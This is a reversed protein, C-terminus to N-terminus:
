AAECLAYLLTKSVDNLKWRQRSNFKLRDEWLARRVMALMDRYSPVMKTTYWPPTEPIFDPNVAAQQLYWLKVLTSILMALPTQRMVTRVSWGRTREMGMQQKSEQFCEEIGWRDFFTQIIEEDPLTPDSCVARFPDERGSPDEVFVVRVLKTRCVHYWQCTLGHFRVKVTRGQKRLTATRWKGAVALEDLSDLREGRLRRRQGRSPPIIATRLAADKRLRSVAVVNEPMDGFFDKAAYLGDVAVVIRKNPLAEAVQCVLQRAIQPLTRHPHEADADDIKRYMEFIVPLSLRWKPRWSPRIIVAGVVWQHAWHFVKGQAHSSADKCWGALAVHKGRPGCTTDDIALLITDGLLPAILRVLVLMSLKRPSWAARYFFKEYVTWNKTASSGLTRIMCTIAGPHPTMLWSTVLQRFTEATPKTFAGSLERLMSYLASVLSSADM